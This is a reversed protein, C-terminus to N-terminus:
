DSGCMPSSPEVIGIRWGDDFLQFEACGLRMWRPPPGSPDSWRFQVMKSTPGEDVIGTVAIISVSPKWSHHKIIGLASERTLVQTSHVASPESPPTTASAHAGNPLNPTTVAAPRSGLDSHNSNPPMGMVLHLTWIGAFLGSTFSSAAVVYMAKQAWPARRWGFLVYLLTAALVSSASVILVSWM